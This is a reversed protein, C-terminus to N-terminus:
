HPAPVEAWGAGAERLRARLALAAEPGDWPLTRLFAAFEPPGGLLYVEERTTAGFVVGGDQVAQGAREILEPTLGAGAPRVALWNGEPAAM